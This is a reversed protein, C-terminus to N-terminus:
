KALGRLRLLGLADEWAAAPAGQRTWGDAVFRAVADDVTVGPTPLGCERAWTVEACAHEIDGARHVDVFEMTGGDPAGAIALDALEVLTTRRGSGLNVTLVDTTSPRRELLMRTAAVVDSVHVFDRTQHGDGYVQVPLGERLCALFAALVGTYPNHLSQGEGIVNQPRVISVPVDGAAGDQFLREAAAKTEGYISVPAVPDTERSAAPQADRCCRSSTHPGHAGCDWRGEGYVARSSFFVIPVDHDAAFHAANRTGDVNVSRYRDVEYMSQGVGTEAALHVVADVSPLGRWFREDRVDAERLVSGLRARVEDPDHHIQPRLDDVVVVDIDDAMLSAILATGIFGAGGTVLVSRM